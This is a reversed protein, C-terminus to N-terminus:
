VEPMEGMPAPASDRLKRMRAEHEAQHRKDERRRFWFNVLLGLVGIVIGCLVGFESSLFWSVSSAAAGGMTAKHGAAAITADLSHQYHDAM